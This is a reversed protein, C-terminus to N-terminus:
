QNDLVVICVHVTQNENKELDFLKRAFQNAQSPSPTIHCVDFWLIAFDLVSLRTMCEDECLSDVFGKIQNLGTEELLLRYLVNPTNQGGLKLDLEDTKLVSVIGQVMQCLLRTIQDISITPQVPLHQSIFAKPDFPHTQFHTFYTPITATFFRIIIPILSVFDQTNIANETVECGVCVCNHLRKLLPNKIILHIVARLHRPNVTNQRTKDLILYLDKLIATDQSGLSETLTGFEESSITSTTVGQLLTDLETLDCHFHSSYKDICKLVASYDEELQECFDSEPQTPPIIEDAHEQNSGPQLQDVVPHSESHLPSLPISIESYVTPVMEATLSPLPSVTAVAKAEPLPPHAMQVTPVEPISDKSKTIPVTSSLSPAVPVDPIATKPSMLPSHYAPLPTTHGDGTHLTMTPPEAFNKADCLDSYSLPCSSPGSVSKERTPCPNPPQPYTMPPQTFATPVVPQHSASTFDTSAQNQIGYTRDMPLSTTLDPNSMTRSSQAPVTPISHVLTLPDATPVNPASSLIPPPIIPTATPVSATPIASATPVATPIAPAATPVAMHVAPAPVTPVASASVAGSAVESMNTSPLLIGSLSVANKIHMTPIERISSRVPLSIAPDASLRRALMEDRKDMMEVHETISLLQHNHIYNSLDDVTVKSTFIASVEEFLSQTHRAALRQRSLPNLSCKFLLSHIRYFRDFFECVDEFSLEGEASTAFFTQLFPTDCCVVCYSKLLSTVNMSESCISNEKEADMMFVSFVRLLMMMNEPTDHILSLSNYVDGRYICGYSDEEAVKQLEGISDMFLPYKQRLITVVANYPAKPVTLTMTM